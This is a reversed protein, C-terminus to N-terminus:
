NECNFSYAIVVEPVLFVQTRAVEAGVNKTQVVYSEIQGNTQEIGVEEFMKQLQKEKEVAKLRTNAPTNIKVKLKTTPNQVRHTTLPILGCTDPHTRRHKLLNGVCSFSSGCNECQFPKIGTHLTSHTILSQRHCFGKGCVKLCCKQFPMLYLIQHSVECIFAKEYTHIREHVKLQGGTLFLKACFRCMFKRIGTHRLM